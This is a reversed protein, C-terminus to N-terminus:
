NCVIERGRERRSVCVRERGREGIEVCDREGEKELKCVIERGRGRRSVCLREGEREGVYM